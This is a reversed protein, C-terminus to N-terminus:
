FSPGYEVGPIGIRFDLSALRSRRPGAQEMGGASRATGRVMKFSELLKMMRFCHVFIGRQVFQNDARRRAAVLHDSEVLEVALICVKHPAVIVVRLSAQPVDLVGPWYSRRRR